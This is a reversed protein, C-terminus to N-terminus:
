EEVAGLQEAMWLLVTRALLPWDIEAQADAPMTTRLERAWDSNGLWVQQLYTEIDAEDWIAVTKTGRLNALLQRKITDYGVVLGGEGANRFPALLEGGIENRDIYLALTQTSESTSM